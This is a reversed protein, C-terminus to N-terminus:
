KSDLTSRLPDDPLSSESAVAEICDKRYEARSENNARAMMWVTLANLILLVTLLAPALRYGFSLRGLWGESSEASASIRQTLRSYFYPGAELDELNAMSELTRRVEEEIRKRRDQEDGM